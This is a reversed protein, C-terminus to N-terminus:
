KWIGEQKLFKETDETWTKFYRVNLPSPHNIRLVKEDERKIRNLAKTAYLGIGIFVKAEFIDLIERLQNDCITEIKDRTSKKIKDPTINRKKNQDLFALQCYNLVIQNKFFDNSNPYYKSILGWLKKGSVEDRKINYGEIKYLPHQKIKTADINYNLNMYDKIFSISGFPIGTQMMGFPGPNMGLFIIDRKESGKLVYNIFSDLAYTMPNYIFYDIESYLKKLEKNNKNIIKEIKTYYM